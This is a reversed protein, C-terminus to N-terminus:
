EIFMSGLLGRQIVKPSGGGCPTQQFCTNIQTSFRIHTILTGLSQDPDQSHM